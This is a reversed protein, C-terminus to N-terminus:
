VHARGIKIEKIKKSCSRCYLYDIGIIQLNTPRVKELDAGSSKLHEFELQTLQNRIHNETQLHAKLNKTLIEKKCFECYTYKPKDEKLKQMIEEEERKLQQIKIKREM